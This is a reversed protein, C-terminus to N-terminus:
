ESDENGDGLLWHWIARWYGGTYCFLMGNSHPFLWSGIGGGVRCEDCIDCHYIM